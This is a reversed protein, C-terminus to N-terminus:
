LTRNYVKLTYDKNKHLFLSCPFAIIWLMWGFFWWGWFSHGKRKAIKGPIIAIIPAIIFIGIFLDM